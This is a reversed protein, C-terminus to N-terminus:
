WKFIRVKYMIFPAGVMISKEWNCDAPAVKNINSTYRIDDMTWSPDRKSGTADTYWCEGTEPNYNVSKLGSGTTSTANFYPIKTFTEQAINFFAANKGAVLLTNDDVLTMDHLGTVFSKTNITKELTLSPAATNWDTLKYINLSTGGIAYLRETKQNWVVGHASVLPTSFLVKNSLNVDFIQICDGGDSCAVAIRNGPLFEASHANGSSNSYWLLKKTKYDVLVAYSQSSTALIKTNNDVPKCDDLRIMGKGVTAAESKADWEWLIANKYGNALALEADIHYIMNDGCFILQTAGTDATGSDVKGGMQCETKDETKFEFTSGSDTTYKITYGKSLTVPAVMFPFVQSGARCDLPTTFEVTISAAAASCSMTGYDFTVDGAIKEGGNATLVAKTISYNGKELKAYLTSHCPTMEMSPRVSTNSSYTTKGIYVPNVNGKQATPINMKIKSDDYSVGSGAFYAFLGDGNNANTVAFTFMSMINESMIPSAESKDAPSATNVLVIKDTKKWIKTSTTGFNNFYKNLTIEMNFAKAAQGGGETNKECSCSIFALTMLMLLKLTYRM